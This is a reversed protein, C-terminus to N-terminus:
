LSPDVYCANIMALRKIFNSALKEVLVPHYGNSAITREFRNYAGDPVIGTQEASLLESCCSRLANPEVKVFEDWIQQITKM